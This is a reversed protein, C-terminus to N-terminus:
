SKEKLWWSRFSNNPFSLNSRNKHWNKFLTNVLKNKTNHGAIDWWKRNLMSKKWIKWAIKESVSNFGKEVTHQRNKLILEHLPIKVPCVETCRGCLSSSQALHSYTKLDTLNPSIVKGIPGTYTVNYAHGGISKYIPCVNLCAGCRICYLGQKLQPDDLLKTRGNDLLIVYFEEPGDSENSKKPGGVITNYVTIKQGTGYNALLTWFLSLHQVSPIIKEIGVIVIHTKPFAMSLRANGENETVAIAGIDPLIFNAGSIGIEAQIYASRLRKRAELTIEQPSLNLPTGFHEHFVQAVDEKSKHMAPTLIHYPPQNDLQQIYEGLDTEVSEIQHEKLFHNLHIEESVMSKSKVVMKAQKKKCIELIYQLADASNEAWLVKGGNKICNTEFQELYFDVNEIAMKKLSHAVHKVDEINSFQKIGLEFQHSYKNINFELKRRHEPDFSKQAAAHLFDEKIQNM